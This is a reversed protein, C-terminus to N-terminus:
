TSFAGTGSGDASLTGMRLQSARHKCTPFEQTVRMGAPVQYREEKKPNLNQIQDAANVPINNQRLLAFIFPKEIQSLM